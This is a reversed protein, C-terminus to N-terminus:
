EETDVSGVRNGNIDRLQSINQIDTDNLRDALLGLIRSLEGNLNDTFADNETNIEIIVKM